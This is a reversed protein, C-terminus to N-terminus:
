EAKTATKHLSHAIFGKLNGQSLVLSIARQEGFSDQFRCM